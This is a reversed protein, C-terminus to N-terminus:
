NPPSYIVEDSIDGESDISLAIKFKRTELFMVSALDQNLRTFWSAQAYENLGIISGNQSRTLFLELNLQFWVRSFANWSDFCTMTLSTLCPTEVNSMLLTVQKAGSQLLSPM